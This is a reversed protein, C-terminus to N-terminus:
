SEDKTICHQHKMHQFFSSFYNFITALKLGQATLVLGEPSEEILEASILREIRNNVMKQSNYLGNIEKLTLPQKLLSFLLNASISGITMTFMFIYLECFFAYVLLCSLIDPTLGYDQYLLITLLLGAIGSVIVFKKVSTIGELISIRSFIGHFFVAIIIFGLTQILLVM